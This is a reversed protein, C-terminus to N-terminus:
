QPEKQFASDFRKVATEIATAVEQPAEIPTYHRLGPLVFLTAEQLHAVIERAMSPPTAYDDEGVVVAAPGLYSSLHPREDTQGLMRCTELYAAPDNRLFVRIADEMAAPKQEAYSQSFWRQVQFPVMASFGEDFVRQGREEWAQKAADGYCSTTDVVCLSAVRDPYRGAFALAVTGGMSCGVIHARQVRLHDLASRLDRAFLDTSYPGAPKDSSGHGRCDIAYLSLNSSLMQAVDGWMEGDMALAHVFIVPPAESAGDRLKRLVLQCGDEATVRVVPQEDSGSDANTM